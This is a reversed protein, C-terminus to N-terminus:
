IPSIERLIEELKSSGHWVDDDCLDCPFEYRPEIYCNDCAISENKENLKINKLVMSVRGLRWDTSVQADIMTTDNSQTVVNDCVNQLYKFGLRHTLNEFEIKLALMVNSFRSILLSYLKRVCHMMDKCKEDKMENCVVNYMDTNVQIGDIFVRCDDIDEASMNIHVKLIFKNKLEVSHNNVDDYEFINSIMKLLTWLKTLEPSRFRICLSELGNNVFSSLNQMARKHCNKSNCIMKLHRLKPFHKSIIVKWMNDSASQNQYDSEFLCLHEVNRPFWLCTCHSANYNCNSVQSLKWKELINKENNLHLSKLQCALNNLIMGCIFKDLNGCNHIAFSKLNKLGVKVRTTTLKDKLSELLDYSVTHDMGQISLMEINTSWQYKYKKMTDSNNANDNVQNLQNVDFTDYKAEIENKINNELKEIQWSHLRQRQKATIETSLRQNLEIAKPSEPILIQLLNNAESYNMRRDSGCRFDLRKIRSRTLFPIVQSMLTNNVDKIELFPCCSLVVHEVLTAMKIDPLHKDIFLHRKWQVCM